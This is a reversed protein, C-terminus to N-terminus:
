IIALIVFLVNALVYTGIVLRAGLSNVKYSADIEGRDNYKLAIASVLLCGFIALYTLAHLTDVLTFDSSEPLLSDIIYKNGVAAFLGGVPLGFRPELESPKPTFSIIAILFAIYMGIFIKAFLGWAEREINMEIKLASFLQYHSEPDGFGTEYDNDGNVVRFDTITWGDIAEKKDFNSGKVDPRFVLSSNDFLTNEIQVKLRQEDFPFDRVDWNQKMTCKMKMIVWAKGDLSDYIIEPPDITKANPIDLQTAFDFEPNSYLFWLWFRITYEKEHFNIDHVSIVYSGANVTDPQASLRFTGLFTAFITILLLKRDM